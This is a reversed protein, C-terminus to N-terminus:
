DLDEIAPDAGEAGVIVDAEGRGVAAGEDLADAGGSDRNDVEAGAGAAEEAFEVGGAAVDHADIPADVDGLGPHVDAVAGGDLAVEVGDGEEGREGLQSRRDVFEEFWGAGAGAM